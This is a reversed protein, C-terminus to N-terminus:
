DLATRLTSRRLIMPRRLPTLNRSSGIAAMAFLTGGCVGLFILVFLDGYTQTAVAFNAANATLLALLGCSLNGLAVSQRGSLQLIARATRALAIIMVGCILLGPLGLDLTLKGLGGEGAGTGTFAGGVYRAGQAASGLGAGFAGFRAYAWGVPAIGLEVVRGGADGFVSSARDVYLEYQRKSARAPDSGSQSTRALDLETELKFFGPGIAYVTLGLLAVAIATGRTRQVYVAAFIFYACLFTAIMAVFKRRGTLIGLGVILIVVVIALLVRGTVLRNQSMLIMVVCAATAAHWGAIESSRLTGSHAVLRGGYGSIHIGAGVEGLVPWDLGSAELGVTCLAVLAFALYFWLFRRIRPVGGTVAFRYGLIMGAFPAMYEILGLTPVLPNGFRVLSHAAQLLLVMLFLGFPTRMYNSWFPISRFTLSMGTTMARAMATGFVIAAFLIFYAPQDPTIKRLPDQLFAMAVAAYVGLRWNWAAILIGLVLVGNALVATM